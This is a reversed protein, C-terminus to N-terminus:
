PMELSPGVYPVKVRPHEKAFVSDEKNTWEYKVNNIENMQLSIYVGVIGLIFKLVRMPIM